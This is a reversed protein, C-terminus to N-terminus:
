SVMSSPQLLSRRAMRKLSVAPQAPAVAGQGLALDAVLQALAPSPGLPPLLHIGLGPFREALEETRQTIADTTTGTFLFYPLIALRQVGQQILHIIQTELHPPVAWYAVAGGLSQALTQIARNGEPRRSGHALLLWAEATTTQLREQALHRLGPHDGLSPTLSLALDPLSRQAMQMEAPLDRLVHVGRLLFIPVIRIATAGAAAARRGFKVIQQHLPLAGTELCATGVLIPDAMARRPQSAAALGSGYMAAPLREFPSLPTGPLPPSSSVTTGHPSNLQERVLQALREAAQGPRPDRSGHYVLLYATAPFLNTSM